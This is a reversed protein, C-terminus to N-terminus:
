CSYHRWLDTLTIYIGYDERPGANSEDCMVMRLDQGNCTRIGGSQVCGVEGLIMWETHIRSCAIMIREPELEDLITPLRSM